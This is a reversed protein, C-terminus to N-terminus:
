EEFKLHLVEQELDILSNGFEGIMRPGNESGLSQGHNIPKKGELMYHAVNYVSARLEGVDGRYGAVEIELQGLAALGTTFLRLSGNTETEVRFDIWLYLPLDEPTMSSALEVFAQAPHVVRGPGWFVGLADGAQVTAALLQTLAEARALPRSERDLLHILVHSEHARMTATAEPWYWACDCPGEIYQWPIPQPFHTLAVAFAGFQFTNVAGRRSIGSLPPADPWLTQLRNAVAELSPGEMGRLAVLALFPNGSM